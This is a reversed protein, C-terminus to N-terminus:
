FSAYLEAYAATAAALKEISIWEDNTHAREVDGPGCVVAPVGAQNRVFRADTTFGMGVIPPNTGLVSAVANQVQSVFPHNRDLESPEGFVGIEMEYRLEPDDIAEIRETIGAITSQRDYGPLVRRDITVKCWEAVTNHGSGGAIVGVNATPKGLLDHPTEGFDAAHVALVIKAAKEIASVGNQPQSGHAPTGITTVDVVLLGREAVGIALSTPEPVLCADGHILDQDALTKAGLVGGREEDAVLHFVVDCTPRRGSRQLANLACIAAAIGGKMDTTGRGYMRDGVIEAGFPDHTWASPDIPVVDLHGNVILTRKHDNGVRALLSTRGPQPEVEEFTAGFPELAKRCVDAAARENGPPNVTDIRVLAATLETVEDVDVHERMVLVM